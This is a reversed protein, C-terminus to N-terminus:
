QYSSLDSLKYHSVLQCFRKYKNVEGNLVVFFALALTDLINRFM